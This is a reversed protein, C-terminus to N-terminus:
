FTLDGYLWLNKRLFSLVCFGESVEDDYIVTAVRLAEGWLKSRRGEEENFALVGVVELGGNRLLM